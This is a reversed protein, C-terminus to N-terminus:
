QQGERHTRKDSFLHAIAIMTAHSKLAFKFVAAIDSRLFAFIGVGFDTLFIHIIQGIFEYVFFLGTGISLGRFVIRLVLNLLFFTLAVLDELRVQFTLRPNSTM